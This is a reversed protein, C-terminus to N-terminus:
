GHDDNKKKRKDRIYYAIRIVCCISFLLNLFFEEVGDIVSNALSTFNGNHRMVSFLVKKIM